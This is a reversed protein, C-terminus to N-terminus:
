GCYNPGIRKIVTNFDSVCGNLIDLTHRTSMEGSLPSSGANIHTILEIADERSRKTDALIKALADLLAEM